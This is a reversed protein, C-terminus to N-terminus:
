KKAFAFTNVRQKSMKFSPCTRPFALSVFVPIRVCHTNGFRFDLINKGCDRVKDKFLQRLPKVLVFEILFPIYCNIALNKAFYEVQDCPIPVKAAFM